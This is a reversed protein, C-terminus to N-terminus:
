ELWQLGGQSEEITEAMPDGWKRYLSMMLDYINKKDTITQSGESQEWAGHKKMNSATQTPTTYIVFLMDALLLDKDRQDLMAFDDVEALGRELAIRELTDESFSFGTMSGMYRIINFQKM